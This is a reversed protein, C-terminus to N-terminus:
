EFFSQNINLCHYKNNNHNIVNTLEAEPEDRVLDIGLRGERTVHNEINVDLPVKMDNLMNRVYKENSSRM